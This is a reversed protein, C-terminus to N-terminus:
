PRRRRGPPGGLSARRLGPRGGAGAGPVPRRVGRRPRRRGGRGLLVVPPSRPAPSRGARGRGRRRARRRLVLDGDGPRAGRGGASYGDLVLSRSLARDGISARWADSANQGLVLYFPATAGSVAVRYGSLTSTVRLSPAPSPPAATSGTTPAQAANPSELAVT